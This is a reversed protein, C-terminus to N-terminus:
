LGPVLIAFYLNIWAASKQAPAQPCGLVPPRAVSAVEPSQPRFFKLVESSAWVKRARARVPLSDPELDSRRGAFPISRDMKQMLGEFLSGGTDLIAVSPSPLLHLEPFTPGFIM